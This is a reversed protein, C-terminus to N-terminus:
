CTCYHGGGMCTDQANQEDNSIRGRGLDLPLTLFESIFTANVRQSLAPLSPSKQITRKEVHPAQLIGTTTPQWVPKVRPLSPFVALTDVSALLLRKGRVMRAM